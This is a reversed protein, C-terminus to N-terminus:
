PALRPDPSGYYPLPRCEPAPGYVEALCAAPAVPQGSGASGGNQVSWRHVMVAARGLLSEAGSLGGRLMALPTCSM